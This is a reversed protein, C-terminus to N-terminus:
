RMHRTPPSPIKLALVDLSQGHNLAVWNVTWIAVAIFVVYIVARMYILIFALFVVLWTMPFLWLSFGIRVKHPTNMFEKSDQFAASGHFYQNWWLIYVTEVAIIYRNVAYFGLYYLIWFFLTYSIVRRVEKPFNSRNVESEKRLKYEFKLYYRSSKGLLRYAVIASFIYAPLRKRGGLVTSSSLIFLLVFIDAVELSINLHLFLIIESKAFNYWEYLKTITVSAGQIKKYFEDINLFCVAGWLMLILRFSKTVFIKAKETLITM